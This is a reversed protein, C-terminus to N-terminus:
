TRIEEFAEMLALGSDLHPTARKGEPKLWNQMTRISLESSLRLQTARHLQTLRGPKARVWASVANLNRTIAKDIKLM